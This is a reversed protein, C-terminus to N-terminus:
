GGRVASPRLNLKEEPRIGACQITDGDPLERNDPTFLALLHANQTIGFVRTAQERLMGVLETLKVQFRKLVGNYAVEVDFHDLEHQTGM